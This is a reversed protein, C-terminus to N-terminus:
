IVVHALGFWAVSSMWSGVIWWGGVRGNLITLVAGLGAIMAAGSLVLLLWGGFSSLEAGDSELLGRGLSTYVGLLLGVFAFVILFAKAEGNIIRKNM